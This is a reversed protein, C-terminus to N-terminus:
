RGRGVPLVYLVEVGHDLEAIRRVEDDYFTGVPVASLGLATAELLVNQAAHGAELLAYREARAGYRVRSRARVNALVIVVPAAGVFEQDLCAGVLTGRRDGTAVLDLSHSEPAYSHVGDADLVRVVLPYLGGASPATREGGDGTVGQAAWLLQSLQEATLPSSRWDRRSRRRALAGHLALGGSTRPPPLRRGM